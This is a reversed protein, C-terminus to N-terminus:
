HNKGCPDNLPEIGSILRGQLRLTECTGVRTHGDTAINELNQNLVQTAIFMKEQTASMNKLTVDIGNLTNPMVINVEPASPKLQAVISDIVAQPPFQVDLQTNIQATSSAHIPQPILTLESEIKVPLAVTTAPHKVLVAPSSQLPVEHYSAPSPAPTSYVAMASGLLLPPIVMLPAVLRTAAYAKEGSVMNSKITGTLDNIRKNGFFNGGAIWLAISGLCVFLLSYLLAVLILILAHGYDDEGWIFKELPSPDRPTKIVADSASSTKVIHSDHLNISAAKLAPASINKAVSEIAANESMLQLNKKFSPSSEINPLCEALAISAAHIWSNLFPSKGPILAINEPSYFPPNNNIATLTSLNEAVSLCYNEHKALAQATKNQQYDEKAYFLLFLLTICCFIIVLPTLPQRQQLLFPQQQRRLHRQHLKKKQESFSPRRIQM